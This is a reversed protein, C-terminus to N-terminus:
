TRYKVNLETMGSAQERAALGRAVFEHVDDSWDFQAFNLDGHQNVVTFSPVLRDVCIVEGDMVRYRFNEVKLVARLVACLMVHFPPLGERRCWPRLDPLDMAFCLNVAPSEMREFFDFRDRRQEFNQMRDILAGPAPGANDCPRELGM